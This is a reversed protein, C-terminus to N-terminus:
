DGGMEPLGVAEMLGMAALEGASYERRPQRLRLEALERRAAGLEAWLHACSQCGVGIPMLALHPPPANWNPAPEGTEYTM